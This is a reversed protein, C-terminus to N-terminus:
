YLLFSELSYWNPLVLSLHHQGALSQQNVEGSIHSSIKRTNNNSYSINSCMNSM